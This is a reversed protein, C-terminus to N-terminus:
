GNEETSLQVPSNPVEGGLVITMQQARQRLEPSTMPAELISTLDALAADTDGNAIHIQSRLELALLRFPRGPEILLELVQDADAAGPKLMLSKLRALDRYTDSLTVDAAIEDYVALAEADQDAEALAAAHGLRALQAGQEADSLPALATARAQPTDQGIASLLADGAAERGAQVSGKRWENFIAGGIILLLALAILWGWKKFFGFLRDRRMEETVEEVFSDTESM